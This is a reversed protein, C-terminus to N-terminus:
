VTLVVKGINKRDQIYEHAKGAQELPFSAGVVPEIKGEAWWQVLVALHKKLLEKQDTMRGLHIGVVGKNSTMLDLPDFRPTRLYQWLVRLYNRRKGGSAASFGYLILKGSKALSGYSQRFSGGGVPDLVLHVGRGHTERLVVTEFNETNYDICVDVGLNKLYSHKGKSATGFVRAKFIKAIQVAAIGVGGAAGHVLVSQGEQINGQHVLAEYATLYNVTLAAAASLDKGKPIPLAEDANVILTDAYGGFNTPAIVPTGPAISAGPGALDVVGAAEYGPVFPVSPAGPYLGMRMLIDAFNVGVAKVRVRIQGNGPTPDASERVELVEPGGLRSIAVSKM